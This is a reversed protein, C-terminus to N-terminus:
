HPMCLFNEIQNEEKEIIERNHVYTNKIVAFLTHSHTYLTCRSTYIYLLIKNEQNGAGILACVAKSHSTTIQNTHALRVYFSFRYRFTRCFASYFFFVFFIRQCLLFNLSMCEEPLNFHFSHTLPFLDANSPNFLEM